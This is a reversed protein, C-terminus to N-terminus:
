GWVEEAIEKVLRLKNWQDEETLLNGEETSAFGCQPSVALQELPVYKEAEHIRAIVQDKNELAADKSTVLGLVVKQNQIFRLPEFGGARESDYELFFGDVHCGGFLTEAVPEYGGSHSWTSRFNGRCIHMTIVMDDPKAELALNIMDVYKHALADVDIGRATYAKRKEQSCLEGWSTDDLQLYRCGADYFARIAKQYCLAIDHLLDAENEYRPIPTYDETRVCCILHLMSPSPICQKATVNESISNLFKFHSLFPHDELFDVKDVIKLTQSKPQFGQFAVSFHEAKVEEVGKLAALFDLHWFARRFEGDTVARLGVRKEDAVLERISEDEVQHLQNQDIAGEAFQKRATVIAPKRLFSGVIDYSYPSRTNM